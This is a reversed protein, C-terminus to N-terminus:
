VRGNRNPEHVAPWRGMIPIGGRRNWPDLLSKPGIDRLSPSEITGLRHEARASEITPAVEPRVFRTAWVVGRWPTSPRQPGHANGPFSTLARGRYVIGNDM